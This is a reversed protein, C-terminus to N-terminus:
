VILMYLSKGMFFSYDYSNFLYSHLQIKIAKEGGQQQFLSEQRLTVAIASYMVGLLPCIPSCYNMLWLDWLRSCSSMTGHLSVCTKYKPLTVLLPQLLWAEQYCPSSILEPKQLLVFPKHSYDQPRDPLQCGSGLPLLSQAQVRCDPPKNTQPVRNIPVSHPPSSAKLASSARRTKGLHWPM